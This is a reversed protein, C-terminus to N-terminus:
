QRVQVEQLGTPPFVSPLAVEQMTQLAETLQLGIAQRVAATIAQAAWVREMRIAAISDHDVDM